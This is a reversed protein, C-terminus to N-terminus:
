SQRLHKQNNKMFVHVDNIMKQVLYIIDYKKNLIM